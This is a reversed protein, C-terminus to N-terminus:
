EGLEKLEAALEALAKGAEPHRAFVREFAKLIRAWAASRVISAQTVELSGALRSYLRLASTGASALSARERPTYSANGQALELEKEIRVVLRRALDKPDAPESAGEAASPPPVSPAAAAAPPVTKGRGQRQAARGAARASASSEVATSPLAPADQTLTPAAGEPVAWSSPAVTFAAELALRAPGSPRRDGKAWARVAAESSNVRRAVAAATHRRTIAALQAAGESRM